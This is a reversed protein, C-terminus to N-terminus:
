HATKTCHGDEASGSFDYLTLENTKVDFIGRAQIQETYDPTHGDLSEIDFDGHDVHYLDDNAIHWTSSATNFIVRVPEDNSKLKDLLADSLVTGGKVRSIKANDRGIKYTPETPIEPHAVEIKNKVKKDKTSSQGGGSTFEGNNARPHKDEEFEAKVLIPKGIDLTKTTYLHEARMKANNVADADGLTEELDSWLDRNGILLHLSDIIRDSLPQGTFEAIFSSRLNQDAKAPFSLDNDILVPRGDDHPHTLWNKRVRDVQGIVYDFVAAQELWERSYEKAEKRSKRGVVYHQISGEVGNFSVNYTVPVLFHKEDPALERDLLYAAEARKYLPGGVWNVLSEKEGTVPKWVAPRSNHDVQIAVIETDNAGQHPMDVTVSEEIQAGFYMDDEPDTGCYKALALEKDLKAFVDKLKDYYHPDEALHDLAIQAVAHMDGDVTDLHEMEEQVGAEFEAPRIVRWDVHMEDGLAIVQEIPLKPAIDMKQVDVPHALLKVPRKLVSVPRRVQIRNKNNVNIMGGGNGNGGDGGGGFLDGMGSGDDEGGGGPTVIFAGEDGGIAAMKIGQRYEDRTIGGIQFRTSFKEEEKQPDLSEAPFSLKFKVGQEGNFKLIDNFHSEVYSILPALGMRYFASQMAEAYGKGGLGASPGEGVESQLIGFAMRVANTASQYSEQNFTLEKTNLVTMGAPLFRARVREANSGTMRANFAAEYELIEDANDKWGEPVTFVLEPINGIQYKDFEYDWLSQLLKVAPLADEIPSRGYPADARLHRPKYWLQRTNLFTKPVGWIIQQFAPAPPKPQEGKEDIVVFITSGDIVRSGVIKRKSNRMFYASGADYVLVNYLFRSLWVPWPNFLDPRETMWDYMTEGPLLATEKEDVLTPVFAKMEETLLRLSMAVEPVTEAYLRLTSFPVLGYAIRPSITSNVSAIYQFSRPETEADKDRASQDASGFPQGPGLWSRSWSGPIMSTTPNKTTDVVQLEGLGPTAAIQNPVSIQAPVQRKSLGDWFGNVAERLGM